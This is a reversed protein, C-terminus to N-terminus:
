GGSVSKSLHSFASLLAGVSVILGIGAMVLIAIKTIDVIPVRQVQGGQELEVAIPQNWVFGGFPFRV